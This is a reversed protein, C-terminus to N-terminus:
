LDATVTVVLRRPQYLAFGGGSFVRWGSVDNANRLQARITAPVKGVITQYRVGLDITTREPLYLTAAANAVREGEYRAGVDISLGPVAALKYDLNLDILKDTRGIPRRGIRGEEVAVGSAKADLFVAGIVVTLGPLPTGSLSVEVGDHSVDGLTKFAGDAADIEFYPKRISFAAAALSLQPAVRWRL